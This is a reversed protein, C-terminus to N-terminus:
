QVAPHTECVAERSFQQTVDELAAASLNHNRQVMSRLPTPLDATALLRSNIEIAMSFDGIRHCSVAYEIPLLWRYVDTEIFLAEGHRPLPITMARAFFLHALSFQDNRQYHLGIRYLPEARLPDNEFAELFAQMVEPWPRGLHELCCAVRYRASWVEAAWGGMEIRRSYFKRANDFDGDCLYSQALYYCARSDDPEDILAHELALADLRFKSPNQSRGGDPLAQTYVGALLEDQTAVSYELSEHVVGVYRWPLGDRVIQHRLYSTHGTRIEGLYSDARLTAKTFTSDVQLVEDADILLLYDAKGRAYELAENRNHSFNKWPREILEGPIGELEQHIIEQTGDNSGTDVIVWSDILPRVSSLCRRIVHAEDKVIMNLCLSPQRDDM